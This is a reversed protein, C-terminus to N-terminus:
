CALHLLIAKRKTVGNYYKVADPTPLVKIQMKQKKLFKEADPDLKLCGSRGTGIILVDPEKKCIKKLEKASVKHTSGDIEKAWRAPREKVKSDARIYLDRSYPKDGVMVRGPGHHLLSPYKAEKSPENYVLAVAGLIIADDGLKSLVLRCGKKPFYRDSAFVKKIIPMMFDGCAEVIGGGLVIMEPDFIHRLNICATGLKESVNRMIELTLADKKKLAQALVGSKIVKLGNKSLKTILTKRGKKVALRIDREIAWRGAIAELCGRNGCTCMPGKDDVIVHGMEAAAGTGGVYLENNVVIGGGVGTGPFIGIVNKLGKAAGLWCEGLVGVNVDNDAAVDVKFKRRLEPVIALGSTNMNPSTLIKERKKDLLGPVGLGIGAIDKNSLSNEELLEEIVDSVSRLLEKRDKGRPTKHKYRSLVKGKDNVLGASIKTGGVDIGIYYKESM